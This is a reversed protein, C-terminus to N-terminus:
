KKWLEIINKNIKEQTSKLIFENFEDINKFYHTKFNRIFGSLQTVKIEPILSMIIFGNFKQKIIKAIEDDQNLSEIQQKLHIEPFFRDIRDICEDKNYDDRFKFNDEGIKLPKIYKLWQQYTRRKENRDRNIKNIYYQAVGSESYGYPELDSVYPNFYKSKIIFEFIEEINEFGQRFKRVNLDLFELIDDINKSVCIVKKKQKKPDLYIYNLGDFGFKMHNFKALQGILNGLDNWSYYHFSIEFDEPNVKIFDIQFNKYNFSIVVESQDYSAQCGKFIKLLVSTPVTKKIIIDLDGFDKKDKFYLPIQYEINNVKLINEVHERYENFEKVPLRATKFLLGGM